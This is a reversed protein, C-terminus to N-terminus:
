YVYKTFGDIRFVLTRADEPVAAPKADSSRLRWPPRAL